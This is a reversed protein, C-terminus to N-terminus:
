VKFRSVLKHLSDSYQESKNAQNLLEGTKETASDISQSINGAGQAGDFTAAAIENMSKTMHQISSSLSNATDRFDSIVTQLYAADTNYDDSAKLMLEYDNRVNGTLYNVLEGSNQYLSNVSGTVSKIMTQIENVTNQSNDALQRIEEAVVAFGKGAEGARAAEIAANLALLNTQNTIQIIVDALDSIQAVAKSDNLAQNLKEQAGRIILNSNEVAANFNDKLTAARDSIEVVAGAADEAKKAISDAFDSLAMAKNNMDESIATTQEMGAAIEETTSSIEEIEGNLAAMDNKVSIASAAVNESEKVVGQIFEKVQMSMENLTKALLGIEDKSKINIEQITIRGNEDKEFARVLSIIPRSILRSLIMGIISIGLLSFLIIGIISLINERFKDKLKLEQEAVTQDIDDIYNGTSVIWNWPEFLKSYARKPSLQGTKVNEPKVWMYDTYGSNKNDTAGSIIEKILAVGNPDKIDIRNKGEDEPQIPHAILYGKTDDIWFYGDENYRLSKVAEKASDKAEEESMTGKNYADYYYNVITGATEVENKIMKDYDDSLSSKIAATEKENMNAISLLSYAGILITFFSSTTLLTLLIKQRIKKM